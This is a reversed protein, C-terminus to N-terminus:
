KKSRKMLIIQMLISLFYIFIFSLAIKQLTYLFGSFSFAELIFFWCNHILLLVSFTSFFWLHGMDLFSPSKLFDYNERPAFVKFIYPRFYAMFLLSSAHLGYTNSFIDVFAGMGFAIVLLIVINIEFPLLMIYLPCMLLHIGFGFELQNFIFLQLFVFLVFRTANAVIVNM